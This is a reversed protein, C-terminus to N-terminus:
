SLVNKFSEKMLIDNLYNSWIMQLCLIFFTKNVKCCGWVGHVEVWGWDLINSKILHIEYETSGIELNGYKIPCHKTLNIISYGDSM